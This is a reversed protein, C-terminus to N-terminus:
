TKGRFKQLMSRLEINYKISNMHHIDKLKKSKKCETVFNKFKKELEILYEDKILKYEDNIMKLYKGKV